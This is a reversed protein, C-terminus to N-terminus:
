DERAAKVANTPADACYGWTGTFSRGDASLTSTVVGWYASGLRETECRRDSADQAWYGRAYRGYVRASIRGNKWAYSGTVHTGSQTLTMDGWSSGANWHGTYTADASQAVTRSAASAAMVILLLVFARWM